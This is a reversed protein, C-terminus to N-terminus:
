KRGVVGQPLGPCNAVRTDKPCSVSLLAPRRDSLFRPESPAEVRAREAALVPDRALQREVELAHAPDLEGDVYAHVLLNADDLATM